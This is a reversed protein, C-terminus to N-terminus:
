GLGLGVQGQDQEVVVQLRGGAVEGLGGMAGATSPDRELRAAVRSQEARQDATRIPVAEQAEAPAHDLMAGGIADDRRRRTAHPRRLAPQRMGHRRRHAQGPHLQRPQRATDVARQLAAQERPVGLLALRRRVCRRAKAITGDAAGHPWPIHAFGGRDAGRAPAGHDAGLVAPPRERGVFHQTTELCADTREGADDIPHCRGFQCGADVHAARLLRRPRRDVRPEIALKAPRFARGALAEGGLLRLDVAQGLRDLAIGGAPGRRFRLADRAPPLQAARRRMRVQQQAEAVVLVGVALSQVFGGGDGLADRQAEVVLRRDGPTGGPRQAVIRLAPQRRAEDIVVVVPSAHVFVMGEAHGVRVSRRAAGRELLREELCRELQDFAIADRHPPVVPQLHGFDRQVADVVPQDLRQHLVVPLM